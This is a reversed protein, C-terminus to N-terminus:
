GPVDPLRAALAAPVAVPLDLLHFSLGKGHADLNLADNVGGDLVGELVFNMAQLGTLVYRTVRAPRRYAFWEAVRAETVQDLLVAHCEADWAILSLNSIDGKDGSRSHALRYLPVEVTNTM